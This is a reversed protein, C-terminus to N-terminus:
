FVQPLMGRIARQAPYVLSNERQSYERHISPPTTRSEAQWHQSKSFWPAFVSLSKSPSPILICCRKSTPGRHSVDTTMWAYVLCVYRGPVSYRCCFACCAVAVEKPDWRRQLNSKYPHGDKSRGCLEFGTMTTMDALLMGCTAIVKFLLVHKGGDDYAMIVIM